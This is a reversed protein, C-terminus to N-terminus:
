AGAEDSFGAVRRGKAGKAPSKPEISEEEVEAEVANDLLQLMLQDVVRAPLANRLEAMEGSVFMAEGNEDKAKMVLMHLAFSTADDGGAAQAKARQAITLPTHWYAFEEGNDLTVAKRVPAMSVAQKLRDIARM